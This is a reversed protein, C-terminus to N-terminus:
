EPANVLKIQPQMSQNSEMQVIMTGEKMQTCAGLQVMRTAEKWVMMRCVSFSSFSQTEIM